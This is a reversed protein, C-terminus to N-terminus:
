AQESVVKVYPIAVPYRKKTKDPPKVTTTETPASPGAQDLAPDQPDEEVGDVVPQDPPFTDLGELM